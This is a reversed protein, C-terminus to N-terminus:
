SLSDNSSSDSMAGERMFKWAQEKMRAEEILQIWDDSSRRTEIPTVKRQRRRKKLLAKEIELASLAPSKPTNKGRM